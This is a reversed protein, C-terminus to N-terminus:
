LIGKPRKSLQRDIVNITMKTSVKSIGDRVNGLVKMGRWKRASSGYVVVLAEMAFGILARADELNEPTM